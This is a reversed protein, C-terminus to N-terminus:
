IRTPQPGASIVSSLCSQWYNLIHEAHALAEEESGYAFQNFYWHHLSQRLGPHYVRTGDPSVDQLVAIPTVNAQIDIM